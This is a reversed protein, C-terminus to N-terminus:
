PLEDNSTKKLADQLTVMESEKESISKCVLQCSFPGEQLASEAPSSQNVLLTPKGPIVYM